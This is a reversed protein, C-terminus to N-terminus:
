VLNTRALHMPWSQIRVLKSAPGFKPSALKIQALYPVPWSQTQVLKSASGVKPSALKTQALQPVPWSLRPWSHSSIMSIEDYKPIKVQVLTPGPYSQPNDSLSVETDQSQGPQPLSDGLQPSPPYAQNPDDADQPPNEIQNANRIIQRQKHRFFFQLFFCCFCCLYVAVTSAFITGFLLGEGISTQNKSETQADKDVNCNEAIEDPCDSIVNALVSEFALSFTLVLLSITDKM